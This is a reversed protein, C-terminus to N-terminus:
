GAALWDLAGPTNRWAPMQGTACVVAESEDGFGMADPLRRPLRKRGLLYAPVHPNEKKAEALLAQSQDTDGATRFTHLAHGYLFIAMGDEPYQDLLRQVQADDGL